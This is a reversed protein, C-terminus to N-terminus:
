RLAELGDRLPDDSDKAADRARENEAAVGAKTDDVVQRAEGDAKRVKPLVKNAANECDELQEKLGDTFPWLGEIRVTQVALLALLVAFAGLTMYLKVPAIFRVARDLIGAFENM